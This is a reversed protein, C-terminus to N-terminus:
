AQPAALVPAPVNLYVLRGCRENPCRFLSASMHNEETLEQGCYTCVSEVEEVAAAVPAAAAFQVAGHKGLVMNGKVERAFVLMTVAGCIFGGAHAGWAISNEGMEHAAHMGFLQDLVWVFVFAGAPINVQFPKIIWILTRINAMAGFAIFYAGIMGSIAGSAGIMPQTSGWESVAHTLGGAVGWVLYLGLFRWPGLAREFTGVFAWLMLMNGILHSLDGHLFMSTVPTIINGQALSTPVLGWHQVFEILEHPSGKADVVLRMEYVFALINIGVLLMGIAPLSRKDIDDGLPLFM